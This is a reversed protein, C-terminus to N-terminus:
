HITRNLIRAIVIGAVLLLLAPGAAVILGIGEMTTM